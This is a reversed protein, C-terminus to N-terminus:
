LVRQMALAHWHLSHMVRYLRYVEQSQVTFIHLRVGHMYMHIRQSLTMFVMVYIRQSNAQFFKQNVAAAKM